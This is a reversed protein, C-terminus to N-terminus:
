IRIILQRQGTWRQESLRQPRLPQGTSAGGISVVVLHEFTNESLGVFACQSIPNAFTQSTRRRIQSTAFGNCATADRMPSDCRLFFPTFRGSAGM